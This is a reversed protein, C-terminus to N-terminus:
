QASESRSRAEALSLEIAFRLDEEERNADVQYASVRQCGDTGNAAGGMALSGYGPSTAGSASRTTHMPTSWASRTSAPSGSVSRHVAWSGSTGPTSPVSTGTSSPTCSMPPFHESDSTSPPQVRDQLSTSLASYSRSIPSVSFGAEIPEARMRPSLQVKHNSLSPAVRLSRGSSYSIGYTHSHTSFSSARSPAGSSAESPDDFDALFVGEDAQPLSSSSLPTAQRRREEEDRSLMLVYEVAEVESLGLNNLTSRQERERGFARRTYSQEEEIDRCSEAIDRYMEVQQHWKAVGANKAARAQKGKMYATGHKGVPGAKWAMVKTGISVVMVDRELLIQSVGDWEGGVTPRSSPSAFARLPAFTLSDWVKVTGRSSGSVLVVANWALATVAGDEHADFKHIASVGTAGPAPHANWAFVSICGLHDGALVFSSEGEQTAFVPKLVSIPGTSGDGFTTREVEGMAMDVSLRYFYPSDRYAVLLAMELASISAFDLETLEYQANGGDKPGLTPIIFERPVIQVSDADEALLPNFGTWAVIDGSQFGGVVAGHAVDLAVKVCPDTVLQPGKNSTWLCQMQKADWLKVRGDAAGSVFATPGDATLGWAVDNVTGEHSENVKCRMHKAASARSGDMVRNATTVAVEGHRFGWLVKATGGESALAVASVHPSFEQNPNGIGLGNVTGSADLFGRLVKGTLAYSRSVIGYQLSASLITNSPMLHICSVASHHPIHTITPNRSGEWRRRLNYRFVFEKKWSSEERRLM